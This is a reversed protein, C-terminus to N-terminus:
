CYRIERGEKEPLEFKHLDTDAMGQRKSFLPSSTEFFKMLRLLFSSFLASASLLINGLPLLRLELETGAQLPSKLSNDKITLFELKGQM